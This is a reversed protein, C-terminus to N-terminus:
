MWPIAWDIVESIKEVATEGECLFKEKWREMMRGVEKRRNSGNVLEVIRERWVIILKGSSKKTGVRKNLFLRPWSKETVYIRGHVYSVYFTRRGFRQTKHHFFKKKSAKLLKTKNIQSIFWLPFNIMIQVLSLFFSSHLLSLLLFLKTKNICLDWKAYAYYLRACSAVLLVFTQQTHFCVLM